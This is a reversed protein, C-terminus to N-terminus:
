CCSMPRDRRATEAILSFIQFPVPWLSPSHAWTGPVWRCFRRQHNLRSLGKELDLIGSREILFWCGVKICNVRLSTESRDPADVQSAGNHDSRIQSRQHGPGPIELPLMLCFEFGGQAALCQM